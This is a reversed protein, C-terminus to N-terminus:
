QGASEVNFVEAIGGKQTFTKSYVDLMWVLVNKRAFKKELRNLKSRKVFTKKSPKRYLNLSGEPFVFVFKDVTDAYAMKELIKRKTPRALVEFGVFGNKTEALFDFKGMCHSGRRDLLVPAEELVATIGLNDKAHPARLEKFVIEHM